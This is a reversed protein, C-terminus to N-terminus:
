NSTPDCLFTRQVDAPSLTGFKGAHCTACTRGNGGFTEEEFLRRGEHFDHGSQARLGSNAELSLILCLAIRVTTAINLSFAGSIYQISDVFKVISLKRFREVDFNNNGVGAAYGSMLQRDKLKEFGCKRVNQQTRGEMFQM